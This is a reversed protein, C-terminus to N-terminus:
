DSLSSLWKILDARDQDKKLGNFNMKTGPVYKKPKLLFKNLEEVSWDGGFNVLAGSYAFGASSAKPRNVIGWMAPGVKNEGGKNFTHCSACKKFLKEGKVMDASALMPTIEPLVEFIDVEEAQINSSGGEPIEIKYALEEPFDPHVAMDAIKSFAAALLLALIIAGLIKNSEM